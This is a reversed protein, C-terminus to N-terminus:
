PGVVEFAGAELLGHVERKTADAFEVAHPGQMAERFTKPVRLDKAHCRPMSPRLLPPELEDLAADIDQRSALRMVLGLPVGRSSPGVSWGANDVREGGGLFADPQESKSEEFSGHGTQQAGAGGRHGGGQGTGPDPEIISKGQMVRRVNLMSRLVEENVQALLGMDVDEPPLPTEVSDAPPPSLPGEESITSLQQQQAIARSNSRTRGPIRRDGQGGLQRAAQPTLPTAYGPAPPPPESSRRGRQAPPSPSPQSTGTSEQPSPAPSPTAPPAPAAIDSPPAPPSPASATARGNREKIVKVTIAAHNDGGNLFFCGVAKDGLKTGPTETMFGYQFFPVLRFPGSKGTYLSQPSANGPNSPSAMQNLVQAAYKASEAWLKDGHQDLGPIRSFGDPGLQEAAARRCAKAVKLCRQIASEVVGNYQQVGPPSFEVAIKMDDCFSRFAKSTWMADCDCRVCQIPSGAKHAADVVLRKFVALAESKRRLAYCAMHGSGADVAFLMYHNGGITASYPGCMDIHVLENAARQGRSGGGTKPVPAKTGRSSMCARCPEM